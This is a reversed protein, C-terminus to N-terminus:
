NLYSLDAKLVGKKVLRKKVKSGKNKTPKMSALSLPAGKAYQKVHVKTAITGSILHTGSTLIFPEKGYLRVDAATNPPIKLSYEVHEGEVRYSVEICGHMTELSASVYSLEELVCPEITFRYMGETGGQAKIGALYQYFWYDYSGFMPHCYSHMNEETESISNEWREWVTTAGCALMYGWGPYKQDTLLKYIVDSRGESALVGILHRYSQNGCTMKYDRAEIDKIMAQLVREREEENVIGLSLAVANGAQIDACYCAQRRDYYKANIAFKIDKELAAFGAYDDDKQLLKAFYKMLGYHWFLYMSSILEIPFGQNFRRSHFPIVSIAPVWDGYLGLPLLGEKTNATLFDVWKKYNGYNEEILRNDGYLEYSFKGMLLYAVSVPDAVNGGLYYPATDKIAGRNDMTENIDETIKNFFLEMGFNNVTQYLRSALDNLWGMREDRQPCDTLIGHHNCSETNVAMFHLRNLLEDSCTFSGCVRSNTRLMEAYLEIVEADGEIAVEIYRFGRYTFRPRYMETERGALIYTDCNIANRLSKRDLCGEDDLMEAFRMTVKAGRGGRVNLVEWGTLMQGFDYIVTNNKTRNKHVYDIRGQITIAQLQQARIKTDTIHRRPVAFYWGNDLGFKESYYNWGQLSEEIRADYTEGDFLTNSIIPSPRAKWCREYEGTVIMKESGDTFKVYIVATIQPMGRWGSGALIGIANKETLHASIDYINYYILKDYDTVVPNLVGNEIQKGNIYFEHYGLGCVYARAREVRKDSPLVINRRFAIAANPKTLPCTRWSVTWDREFLGMEFTYIDSKASGRSTETFVQVYCLECSKLPAGRYEINVSRNDCVVDSDWKDATGTNLLEIKSAVLIRYSKQCLANEEAYRWSFRPHQTEIGLPNKRYETEVSLIKAM